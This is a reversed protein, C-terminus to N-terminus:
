QCPSTVVAVTVIVLAAISVGKPAPLGDQARMDAYEEHM